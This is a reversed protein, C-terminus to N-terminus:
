RGCPLNWSRFVRSEREFGLTSVTATDLRFLGGQAPALDLWRAALVRLCHGHGFVVVDGRDSELVPRVRALV